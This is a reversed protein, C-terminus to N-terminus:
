DSKRIIEELGSLHAQLDMMAEALSLVPAVAIEDIMRIAEAVADAWEERHDDPSGRWSTKSGWAMDRIEPDGRDNSPGILPEAMLPETRVPEEVKKFRDVRWSGTVEELDVLDGFLSKVRYRSGYKIGHPAMVDAMRGPILQVWDGIEFLGATPDILDRLKGADTKVALVYPPNELAARAWEPKLYYIRNGTKGTYTCFKRLYKSITMNSYYGQRNFYSKGLKAGDYASKVDAWVVGSPYKCLVDFLARVRTGAKPLKYNM